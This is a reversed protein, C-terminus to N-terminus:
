MHTEEPKLLGAPNLGVGNALLFNTGFTQEEKHQVNDVSQKIQSTENKAAFLVYCIRWFRV